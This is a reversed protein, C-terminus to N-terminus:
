RKTIEYCKECKDYGYKRIIRLIEKFNKNQCTIKGDVMVNTIDPNLYNLIAGSHTIILISVGQDVFEKQIIKAVRETKKIDLGSDIEDLIVLKPNLSVIQYIESIKREGGSFNVNVERDLLKNVEKICINKSGIIAVFDSLKIGKVEPPNQWSMALGLKARRDSTLNSINKGSFLIKGATIKYKPNGMIVQSLTSKGSGNPGMLVHIENQKIELSLGKLIEKGEVTKVHLNDIILSNKMGSRKDKQNEYEIKKM